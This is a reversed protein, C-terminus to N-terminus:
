YASIMMPTTQSTRQPLYYGDEFFSSQETESLPQSAPSSYALEIHKSQQESFEISAQPPSPPMSDDDSSDDSDDLLEPLTRSPSRVLALEENDEESDYDEDDIELPTITISSQPTIRPSVYIDADEEPEYDSDSDSDSESEADEVDWDEPEEVITDAWQVHRSNRSEEASAEAAGRVSMNFWQEQEREAEALQIMLSDLLNAHGVLLRLDHDARSAEKSLKSRATHALYYTQTISMNKRKLATNIKSPFRSQTSQTFFPQPLRSSM